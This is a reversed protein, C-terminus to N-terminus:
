DFISEPVEGEGGCVGCPVQVQVAGGTCEGCGTGGCSGCHEVAEGLGCGSCEPCGVTQEPGIAAELADALRRADTMGYSVYRWERQEKTEAQEVSTLNLVIEMTRRLSRLAHRAEMRDLDLRIMGAAVSPVGLEHLESHPDEDLRRLFGNEFGEDDVFTIPNGSPLRFDGLLAQIREAANQCLAIRDEPTDVRAM